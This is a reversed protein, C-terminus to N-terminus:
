PRVDVWVARHDSSPFPFEGTLRSLPNRPVPWLIIEAVAAAQPDDRTSLDQELEGSAARNLSAHFTQFRVSERHHGGHCSGTGQRPVTSSRGELIRGHRLL